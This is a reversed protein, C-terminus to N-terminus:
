PSDTRIQLTNNDPSIDIEQVEFHFSCPGEKTRTDISGSMSAKLLPETSINIIVLLDNVHWWSTNFHVIRIIVNDVTADIGSLPLSFTFINKGYEGKKIKFKNNKISVTEITDGCAFKLPVDHIGIEQEDIFFNIVGYTHYVSTRYELEDIYYWNEVLFFAGSLIILVTFVLIFYVIKKM